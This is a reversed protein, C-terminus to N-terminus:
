ERDNRADQEQRADGAEDDGIRALAITHDGDDHVDQRWQSVQDL